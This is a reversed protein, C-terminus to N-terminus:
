RPADQRRKAAPTPWELQCREIQVIILTLAVFSFYLPGMDPLDTGILQLVVGVFLARSVIGPGYLLEKLSALFLIIGLIGTEALLIALFADTVADFLAGGVYVGGVNSVNRLTGLGVGWPASMFSNLAFTIFGERQSLPDDGSVILIPEIFSSYIGTIGIGLLSAVLCSLMAAQLRGRLWLKSFSFALIIIIATLIAGRSLTVTVGVLAIPIDILFRKQKGSVLILALYLYCFVGMIRPDWWPGMARPILGLLPIYTDDKKGFVIGSELQNISSEVYNADFYVAISALIMLRFISIIGPIDIPKDSQYLFLGIMVMPLVRLNAINMSNPLNAILYVLLLAIYGATAPYIHTYLKASFLGKQRVSLLLLLPAYNTAINFMVYADSNGQAAFGVLSRAFIPLLIVPELARRVIILYYSFGLIAVTVSLSAAPLLYSCVFAIPFLLIYSLPLSRQTNFQPRAIAKSFM